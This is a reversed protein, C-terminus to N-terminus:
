MLTDTHPCLVATNNQSNFENVTLSASNQGVSYRPWARGQMKRYIATAARFHTHLQWRTRYGTGKGKRAEGVRSYSRVEGAVSLSVGDACTSSRQAKNQADSRRQLMKQISSLCFGLFFPKLVETQVSYVVNDLFAYNLQPYKQPVTLEWWSVDSKMLDGRRLQKSYSLLKVCM